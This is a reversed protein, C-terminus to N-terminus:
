TYFNEAYNLDNRPYMFPQGNSYKYCMAAITPVKVILRIATIKITKNASM